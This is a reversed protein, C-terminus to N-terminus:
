AGEEILERTEEVGIRDSRKVETRDAGSGLRSRDSGRDVGVGLLPRGEQWAGELSLDWDLEPERPWNM